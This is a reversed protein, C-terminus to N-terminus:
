SFLSPDPAPNPDMGRVLLDSGLPGFVHRDPYWVSDPDHKPDLGSVLGLIFSLSFHLCHQPDSDPNRHKKSELDLNIKKGIGSGYYKKGSGPNETGPDL